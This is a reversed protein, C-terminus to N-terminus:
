LWLIANVSQHFYYLSLLLKHLSANNLFIEINKQFGTFEINNELKLDKILNIFKKSKDAIIKMKCDAIKKSIISMAKIGLDYRKVPDDIRGIMIINKNSLSSPKVSVYEFTIPNDMLISNIGWKKFLYDNEFPILSIVYKSNKYAPYITENFNIKKNFVWYLFSSHNYFITKTKNLSNLQKIVNLNYFNYIIIDLKEENIVDFINKKNDSLCIRNIFNPIKYEGDSKKNDTILYINFYKEKSILNILLAIVREVGGYRISHSYYGIKLKDIILDYREYYIIILFYSLFLIFIVIFKIM